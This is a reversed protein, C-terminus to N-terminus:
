QMIPSFSAEDIAPNSDLHLKSACTHAIKYWTYKLLLKGMNQKQWKNACFQWYHKTVSETSLFEVNQWILTLCHM